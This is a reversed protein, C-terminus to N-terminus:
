RDTYSEAHAHASVVCCRRARAGLRNSPITIPHTLLGTTCNHGPKRSQKSCRL